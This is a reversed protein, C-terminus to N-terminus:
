IYIDYDIRSIIFMACIGILCFFFQRVLYSNHGNKLDDYVIFSESFIFSILVLLLTLLIM